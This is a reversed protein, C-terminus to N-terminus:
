HKKTEQSYIYRIMIFDDSLRGDDVSKGIALIKGDYVKSREKVQCSLGKEFAGIVSTKRVISITNDM